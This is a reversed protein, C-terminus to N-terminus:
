QGVRRRRGRGAATEGSGSARQRSQEAAEELERELADAASRRIQEDETLVEVSLDANQAAHVLANRVQALLQGGQSRRKAEMLVRVVEASKGSGASLQLVLDPRAAVAAAAGTAAAGLAQPGALEARLLAQVASEAGVVREDLSERARALRYELWTTPDADLATALAEMTDREPRIRGQEIQSIAGATLRRGTKTRVEYALEEQSLKAAGRLQKVAEALPRLEPKPLAQM